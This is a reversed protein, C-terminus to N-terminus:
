EGKVYVVEDIWDEFRPDPKRYHHKMSYMTKDPVITIAEERSHVRNLCTEFDTVMVIVTVKDPKVTLNNILKSRSGKSLHTADAIVTKDEMLYMDIRNCFEKYVEYEHDYYHEQDAVYQFRIEDRSIYEWDKHMEVLKRGYTSKGCGPIGCMMILHNM